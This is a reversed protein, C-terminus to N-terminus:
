EDKVTIQDLAQQIDDSISAKQGRQQKKAKRQVLEFEGRFVSFREEIITFAISTLIFGITTADTTSSILSDMSTLSEPTLFGRLLAMHEQKFTGDATFCQLLDDLTPLDDDNKSEENEAIVTLSSKKTEEEDSRSVDDEEDKEDMDAADLMAERKMM